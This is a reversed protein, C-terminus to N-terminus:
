LIKDLHLELTQKPGSLVQCLTCKSVYSTSLTATLNCNPDGM